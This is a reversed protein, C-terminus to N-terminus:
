GGERHEEEQKPTLLPTYEALGEWTCRRAADCAGRARTANHLAGEFPRKDPQVQSRIPAPPSVDSPIRLTKRVAAESTLSVM